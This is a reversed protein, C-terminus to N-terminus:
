VLEKYFAVIGQLYRHDIILFPNVMYTGYNLPLEKLHSGESTPEKICASTM